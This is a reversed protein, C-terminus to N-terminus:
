RISKRPWLRVLRVCLVPRIVLDWTLERWRVERGCLENATMGGHHVLQPRWHQQAFLREVISACIVHSVDKSGVDADGRLLHSSRAILFQPEYSTCEGRECLSRREPLKVAGVAYIVVM